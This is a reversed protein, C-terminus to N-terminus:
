ASELLPFQKEALIPLHEILGGIDGSTLFLVADDERLEGGIRALGEECSRIPTADVGAAHVRTMIESLSAQEHTGAGQNAPEFIFVRDCGSFVDDYWELKNRNRWSFTHPEFVVLLRRQAFHKIVGRFSAMATIYQEMSALGRTLVFAGIGVMNEINHAGLQTTRVRAVERGRETLTFQSVAGYEIAEARWDGMTLGFTVVDRKAEALFRERLEGSTAAVILGDRPVLDFLQHFPALYSAITPFVNVHDHALPALLVHAPRYHLFKSQNDTNSSPYEDGELLFLRGTGANSARAPSLPVAGIMWSPDLGASALCHAMM